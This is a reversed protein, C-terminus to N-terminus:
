RSVSVRRSAAVAAYYSSDQMASFSRSRGLNPSAGFHGGFRMELVYFRCVNKALSALPRFHETHTQVGANRGVVLLVDQLLDAGQRFVGCPAAPSLAM